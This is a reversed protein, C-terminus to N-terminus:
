KIQFYFITFFYSIGNANNMTKEKLQLFRNSLQDESQIIPNTIVTNVESLVKRRIRNTKPVIYLNLKHLYSFILIFNFCILVEYM